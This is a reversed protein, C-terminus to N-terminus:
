LYSHDIVTGAQGILLLAVLGRTDTQDNETKVKKEKKKKLSIEPFFTFYSNMNALTLTICTMKDNM